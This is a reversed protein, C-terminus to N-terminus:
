YHKTGKYIQEEEVTCTHFLDMEDTFRNKAKQTLPTVCVRKTKTKM